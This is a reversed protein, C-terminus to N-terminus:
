VAPEVMVSVLSSGTIAALTVMLPLPKLVTTLPPLVTRGKM